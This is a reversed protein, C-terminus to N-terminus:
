VKRATGALKPVVSVRCTLSKGCMPRCLRSKPVVLDRDQGEVFDEIDEIDADRQQRDVEKVLRQFLNDLPEDTPGLRYPRLTALASKLSDNSLDWGSRVAQRVLYGLGALPSSAARQMAQACRWGAARRRADGLRYADNPPRYFNPM